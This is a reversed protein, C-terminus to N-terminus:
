CTSGGESKRKRRLDRQVRPPERPQEQPPEKAEVHTTDCPRDCCSSVTSAEVGVPASVLVPSTPTEVSGQRRDVRKPEDDCDIRKSLEDRPGLRPRTRDGVEECAGCTMPDTDPPEIAAELRWLSISADSVRGESGGATAVQPTATDLPATRACLQSSLVNISGVTELARRTELVRLSGEAGGMLLVEGFAGVGPVFELAQVSSGRGKIDALPIQSLRRLDWLLVNGQADASALQPSTPSLAVCFAPAGRQAHQDLVGTERMSQSDMLRVTGDSCAACLARGRTAFGFVYAKGAPNRHSGGFVIGGQAITIAAQAILTTRNLDWQQVANGAGVALLGEGGPLVDLGYVEDDSVRMTATSAGDAADWVCVEGESSGTLLRTGDPHWCVRMLEPAALKVPETASRGDVVSWVYGCTQGASALRSPQSPSWSLDFVREAHRALRGEKRVTVRNAPKVSM